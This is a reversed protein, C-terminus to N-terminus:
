AKKCLMRSYPIGKELCFEEQNTLVSVNWQEPSLYEYEFGGHESLIKRHHEDADPVDTMIFMEGSNTLIRHFEDLLESSFARRKHHRKKVWPDPFLYFIKEITGSDIFPFGNVVSYWLVRANPIKEGGIVKNIWGIANIRVEFGLMNIDPEALASGIIFKGLGTGIDLYRPALGNPFLEKWDFKEIIPPYSFNRNKHQKLPFYLVPNAHHRLRPIPYKAYDIKKV